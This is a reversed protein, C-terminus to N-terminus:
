NYVGSRSRVVAWHGVAANKIDAVVSQQLGKTLSLHKRVDFSQRCPSMRKLQESELLRPRRKAKALREAGAYAPGREPIVLPAGPHACKVVRRHACRNARQQNLKGRGIEHM